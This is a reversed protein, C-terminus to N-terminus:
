EKSDEKVYEKKAEQMFTSIQTEIEPLSSKSLNSIFIEEKVTDIILTGWILGADVKLDNYLDPTVSSLKYGVLLRNQAILLRENTVALVGTNFLSLANNDLQGAIVFKVSENPNLHKDIIECHKKTRFWTVAGPFKELFMKLKGYTSGNM